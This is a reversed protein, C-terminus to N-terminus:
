SAVRNARWATPRVALGGLAGLVRWSRELVTQVRITVKTAASREGIVVDVWRVLESTSRAPACVQQDLSGQRTKAHM